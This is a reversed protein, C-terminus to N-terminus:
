YSKGYTHTKLLGYAYRSSPPDPTSTFISCSSMKGGINVSCISKPGAGAEEGASRSVTNAVGTSFRAFWGRKKM